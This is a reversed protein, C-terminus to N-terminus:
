KFLQTKSDLLRDLGVGTSIHTLPGFIGEFTESVLTLVHDITMKSIMKALPLM